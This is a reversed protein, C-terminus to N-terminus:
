DDCQCCTTFANVCVFVSYRKKLNGTLPKSSRQRVWVIFFSVLLKCKKSHVLNMPSLCVHTSTELKQNHENAYTKKGGGWLFRPIQPALVMWRPYSQVSTFFFPTDWFVIFFCSRPVPEGVSVRTERVTEDKTQKTKGKEVVRGLSTAYKKRKRLREGREIKIRM